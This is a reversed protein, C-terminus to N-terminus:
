NMGARLRSSRRPTEPVDARMLAPGESAPRQRRAGRSRGPALYKKHRSWNQRYIAIRYGPKAPQSDIHPPRRERPVVSIQNKKSRDFSIRVLTTYSCGPGM